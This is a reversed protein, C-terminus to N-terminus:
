NGVGTVKQFLSKGGPLKTKMEEIACMRGIAYACYIKEIKTMTKHEEVSLLALDAQEGKACLENMFPTIVVEFREDSIGLLKYLNICSDM